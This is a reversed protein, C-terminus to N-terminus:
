IQTSLGKMLLHVFYALYGGPVREFYEGARHCLLEVRVGQGKIVSHANCLPAPSHTFIVLVCFSKSGIDMLARLIELSM